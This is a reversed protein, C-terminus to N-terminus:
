WGATLTVWMLRPAGPMINNNGNSTPYYRANLINELNVRAGVRSVPRLFLAGDVRNFSPLTVTNDIAAYMQSQHILGVGVGLWRTAQYRNWLSASRSPVLAPTAGKRAARTESTIAADQMTYGGALQWDKTVNGNAGVELGKTRQSGTQVIRTADLPDPASTNSRDLQYASATLSLSGFVDWKVGM